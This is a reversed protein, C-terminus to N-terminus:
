LNYQAVIRKCDPCTLRSKISAVGATSAGSKILLEAINQWGALLSVQLATLGSKDKAELDAGAKVLAAPIEAPPYKYHGARAIMLLPTDGDAGGERENVDAGARVAAAVGGLDLKKLAAWLPSQAPEQPSMMASVKYINIAVQSIAARVPNQSSEARVVVVAGRGAPQARSSGSRLVPAAQKRIAQGSCLTTPKVAIM